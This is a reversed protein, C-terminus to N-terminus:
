QAGGSSRACRFGVHAFAADAPARTVAAPRAVFLPDAFSGGKIVHCAGQSSSREGCKPDFPDSFSDAVWESVNAGLDRVGAWSEDLSSVGVPNPRQPFRPCDAATQRGSPRRGYAVRECSPAFEWVFPRGDPGRAAYEWEIATPLRANRAACYEGAGLHTVGTIPLAGDERAFQIRKAGSGTGLTLGRFGATAKWLPRSGLTVAEAATGFRGGELGDSLWAAFADTTVETRDIEFAAVVHIGRGAERKLWTSCAKADGEVRTCEALAPSVDRTGPEFRGAEVHLWGSPAAAPQTLASPAVAPAVHQPSTERAAGLSALVEPNTRAPSSESTKVVGRTRFSSWVIGGAAVLLGAWLWARWRTSPLSTFAQSREAAAGCAETWAHLQGRLQAAGPNDRLVEEVIAAVRGEHEARDIVASWFLRPSGHEIVLDPHELNERAYTRIAVLDIVVKALERVLKSRVSRM